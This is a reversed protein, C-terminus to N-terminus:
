IYSLVSESLFSKEYLLIKGDEIEFESSLRKHTKRYDIDNENEETQKPTSNTKDCSSGLRAIDNQFISALQVGSKYNISNSNDLLNATKTYNQVNKGTSADVKGMKQNLETQKNDAENLIRQANKVAEKSVEIKYGSATCFGFKTTKILSREEENRESGLMRKVKQISEESVAVNSGSATVFGVNASTANTKHIVNSATKEKQYKEDDVENLINQAKQLSEKSVAIKNGSVTCFGIKENVERDKSEHEEKGVESLIKAAKKVSEESVTIGKGSATSFAFKPFKSLSGEKKSFNDSEKDSLMSKARQISVESVSVNKGSATTLGVPKNEVTETSCSVKNGNTPKREEIDVENVTTQSERLLEVPVTVGNHSTSSMSFQENGFSKCCEKSKNNDLSTKQILAESTKVNNELFTFGKPESRLATNTLAINQKGNVVKKQCQEEKNVENLIRQAKKMSEESITITKGSATSFGFKEIENFGREEPCHENAINSLIEGSFTVKNGSATTVVSATNKKELLENMEQGDIKGINIEKIIQKGLKVSDQSIEANKDSATFLRIGTVIEIIGQTKSIIHRDEDELVMTKCTNEHVISNPISFSNKSTKETEADGPISDPANLVVNPMMNIEQVSHSKGAVNNQPTGIQSEIHDSPVEGSQKGDLENPKPVKKLSEEFLTLDKECTSLLGHNVNDPKVSNGYSNDNNGGPVHEVNDLNKEEEACTTGRNVRVREDENMGQINGGKSPCSEKELDALVKEVDQIFDDSLEPMHQVDGLISKAEMLSKESIRIEKGSATSFKLTNGTNQRQKGHSTVSGTEDNTDVGSFTPVEFKRRLAPAVGTGATEVSRKVCRTEEQIVDNVIQRAKKLSQVSVDVKKGSATCFGVDFLEEAAKNYQSKGIPDGVKKRSIASVGANVNITGSIEPSVDTKNVESLLKRARQMSRESITLKKGSATSFGEFPQLSNVNQCSRMDFCNVIKLKDNREDELSRVALNKKVEKDDANKTLSIIRSRLNANSEVHKDTAIDFLPLSAPQLVQSTTVLKKASSRNQEVPVDSYRKNILEGLKSCDCNDPAPSIGRTPQCLDDMDIPLESLADMDYVNDDNLPKAEPKNMKNSVILEDTKPIKSVDIFQSKHSSKKPSEENSVSHSGVNNNILGQNNNNSKSDQSHVKERQNSTSPVNILQSLDIDMPFESLADMDYASDDTILKRESKNVENNFQQSTTQLIESVDVHLGKTKDDNDSKVSDYVPHTKEIQDSTSPYHSLDCDMNLFESLTDMDILNEFDNNKVDKNGAKINDADADIGYAENAHEKMCDSSFNDNAHNEEHVSQVANSFAKEPTLKKERINMVNKNVNFKKKMGLIIFYKM